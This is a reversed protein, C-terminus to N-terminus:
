TGATSSASPTTSTGRARQFAQKADRPPITGSSTGVLRVSAATPGGSSISGTNAGDISQRRMVRCTTQERLFKAKADHLLDILGLSVLLDLDAATLDVGRGVEAARSVRKDLHVISPANM